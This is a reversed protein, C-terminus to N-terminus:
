TNLRVNIGIKTDNTKLDHSFDYLKFVHCICRFRGKFPFIVPFLVFFLYRFLLCHKYFKVDYIQNAIENSKFRLSIDFFLAQKDGYCKKETAVILALVLEMFVNHGVLTVM